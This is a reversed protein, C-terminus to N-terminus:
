PYPAFWIRSGDPREAQAEVGRVQRGEKLAVAMPCTEHPMSSGDPHFLKWTVCWQDSGLTPTRGSFEVCAPNFHTLKGQADTTYIAAPLSDILERFRLEDESCPAELESRTSHGMQLDTAM